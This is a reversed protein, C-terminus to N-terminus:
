YQNFTCIDQTYLLAGLIFLFFELCVQSMQLFYTIIYLWYVALNNCNDSYTLHVTFDTEINNYNKGAMIIMTLMGAIRIIKFIISYDHPGRVDDSHLLLALEVIMLIVYGWALICTALDLHWLDYPGDRLSGLGVIISSTIAYVFFIVLNIIISILNFNTQTFM